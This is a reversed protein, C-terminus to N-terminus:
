REICLEAIEVNVGKHINRIKMGCKKTYFMINEKKELPTDLSIVKWDDYLSCIYKFAITGIGKGQYEPIICLCGIYYERDKIRKISIAGIAKESCCIVYKPCKEISEKMGETTKGYGPCQGFRLYDAYFSSNYIDALTEADQIVAKRFSIDM